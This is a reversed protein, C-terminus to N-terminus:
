QQQTARACHAALLPSCAPPPTHLLSVQDEIERNVYEMWWGGTDSQNGRLVRSVKSRQLPKGEMADTISTHAGPWRGRHVFNGFVNNPQPNSATGVYDVICRLALCAHPQVQHSSTWVCLSRLSLAARVM